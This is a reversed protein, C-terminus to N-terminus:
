QKRKKNEDDNEEFPKGAVESSFSINTVTTNLHAQSHRWLFDELALASFMADYKTSSSTVNKLLSFAAQKPISPSNNASIYRSLNLFNDKM